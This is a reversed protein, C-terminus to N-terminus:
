SDKGYKLSSKGALQPKQEKESFTRVKARLKEREDQSLGTGHNSYINVDLTEQFGGRMSKLAFMHFIPNSKRNGMEEHFMGILSRFALAPVKFADNVYAKNGQQEMAIFTTTSIDLYLCLGSITFSRGAEMAKRFYKLGNKIFEQLSLKTARGKSNDKLYKKVKPTEIYDKMKEEVIDFTEFWFELEQNKLAVPKSFDKKKRKKKDKGRKGQLKKVAM